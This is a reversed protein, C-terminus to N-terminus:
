SLYLSILLLITSSVQEATLRNSPNLQLLSFVFQISLEDMQPLLIHYPLPNM